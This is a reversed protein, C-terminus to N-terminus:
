SYIKVISAGTGRWQAWSCTEADAVADIGVVTPAECYRLSEMGYRDGVLTLFKAASGRLSFLTANTPGLVTEYRQVCM